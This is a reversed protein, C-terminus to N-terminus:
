LLLSGLCPGFAFSGRWKHNRLFLKLYLGSGIDRIILFQRFLNLPKFVPWIASM